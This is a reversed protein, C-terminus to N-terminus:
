QRLPDGRAGAVGVQAHRHHRHVGEIGHEAELPHAVEDPRRGVAPGPAEKQAGRGPAGGEGALPQLVLVAVTVQQRGRDRRALGVVGGEGVLHGRDDGAPELAHIGRRSHRVAVVDEVVQRDVVLVVELGGTRIVHAVVVDHAAKVAPVGPRRPLTVPGGDQEGPRRVGCGALRLRDEGLVVVGAGLQPAGGRVLLEPLLGEVGLAPVPQVGLLRGSDRSHGGSQSSCPSRDHRHAVVQRQHGILDGPPHGPAVGDEPGVAEAAAVRALGQAAEELDVTGM